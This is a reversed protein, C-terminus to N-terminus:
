LPRNESVPASSTAKSSRGDPQQRARHTELRRLRAFAKRRRTVLRLKDRIQIMTIRGWIAGFIPGIMAMTTLRELAGPYYKWFYKIFGLAKHTEVFFPSSQRAGGYHVISARPEFWVTGGCERVKRCIDIDEVHLFYREDFGGMQLFGRRPMLMAAGSVVPVPVIEDPLEEKELHMGKFAPIFRDLGLFAIMASRPTLEGRRGGRQESGDPNIIRAGVAWISDGLEGASRKLRSAVGKALVADPNLFLVVDGSARQAGINCGRAFGLNSGTEVLVFNDKDAAMARLSQILEPPNGHNVLVFEDVGPAALISAVAEILRPGTQWSVTVVSLRPQDTAGTEPSRPLVRENSGVGSDRPAM